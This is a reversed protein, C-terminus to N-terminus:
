LLKVRGRKTALWCACGACDRYFLTCVVSTVKERMLFISAAVKANSERLNCGCRIEM